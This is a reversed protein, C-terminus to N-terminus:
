TFVAGESKVNKPDARSISTGDPLFNPTPLSIGWSRDFSLSPNCSINEGGLKVGDRGKRFQAKAVLGHVM